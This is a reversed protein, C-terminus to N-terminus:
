RGAARGPEPWSRPSKQLAMENWPYEDVPIEAHQLLYPSTEKLLDNAM